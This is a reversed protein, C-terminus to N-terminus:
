LGYATLSEPANKLNDWPEWTDHAPSSHMWRVRFEMQSLIAKPLNRQILISMPRHCVIGAVEYEFDQGALYTFPSPPHDQGNHHFPKLLNVHFVDHIRWRPPLVLRYSVAGVKSDIEFPGLWLPFFKRSPQGLLNLYKTKLMCQQGPTFSLLSRKADAYQKQKNRVAALHAKATSVLSAIQDANMRQQAFAFYRGANTILSQMDHLFHNAVPHPSIGVDLPVSPHYGYNLHFPTTGIAHQYSNNVAFEAAPLLTDWNDMKDNVYHRLTEELVRNMRETQGDTEPHHASSMAQRIHLQSCLSRFFADTFKSDRDTILTKPWGHLRFVEKLYLAAIDQATDTMKCQLFHTMKSLTDVVVMIMDHKSKTCPLHTIFDMSVQEWKQAAIHHQQLPGAYKRNSAKNRQCMICGKVFARCDNDLSPWWFYRRVLQVTRYEGGHGAFRSDHLETLIQRKISPSNPIAIVGYRYWLGNHRRLRKHKVSPSNPDGFDADALYAQQIVPLLSLSDAGHPGYSAPTSSQSPAESSAEPSAEAAEHALQSRTMVAAYASMPQAQFVAESAIHQIVAPQYAMAAALNCTLMPHKTVWDFQLGAAAYVVASALSPARSLPDAVNHKGPRYEWEFNYEQLRESWRAQRRSLQPQTSFYTNPHHDTVLRFDHQAGQLYCRWQQLAYMVGLLEQDTTTYRTEADKLRRGIFAVPRGEQLLVAGIGTQCADTVVEFPLTPDPLALVPAQTLRTKIDQFAHECSDTWLWKANKRLLSQLCATISAYGNIYRAFYQGLGLFCRLEHANTPAPWDLLVKVKVPNPQVGKPTVVQGLFPVETMAFRCKSLKCYLSEARFCNLVARLHQVHDAPHKSFILIDDMYVLCFKGLHPALVRNMLAQFTAPANALGFSLVRYEFQGKHTIFATKPIDAPLLRVQHYAQQLDLATFLQAGHLCDILDDIRPIPYRNKVTQKNIARYDVCM